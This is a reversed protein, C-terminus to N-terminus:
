EKVVCIINIYADEPVTSALVKYGLLGDEDLYTIEIIGPTYDLVIYYLDSPGYIGPVEALNQTGSTFHTNESSKNQRVYEEYLNIYKSDNVNGWPLNFSPMYFFNPAAKKGVLTWETGDWVYVAKRLSRTLIDGEVEKLNFVMLGVHSKKDDDTPNAVFPRLSNKAELEVRPLLLGKDASVNDSGITTKNRIDLLAGKAPETGAGITVQASISLTFLFLIGILFLKKKM